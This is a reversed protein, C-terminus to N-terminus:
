PLMIRGPAGNTGRETHCSNCDGSSQSPGMARERGELTVKATFPRAVPQESYFNGASNVRLELVRGDAGTIVVRIDSDDAGHCNEPEHATPYVTGAISLMPGQNARHCALCPGGPRMQPGEEDKAEWMDGSSCQTPTDFASSAVGADTPPLEGACSERPAGAALWTALVARQDAPVAPGGPPMTGQEMRTLAVDAVRRAGDSPAPRLLQDYTVLAIPATRPPDAHCVQCHERLVVSVACPLGSASGTTSASADAPGLPGAGADGADHADDDSLAGPVSSSPLPRQPEGEAACAALLVVSLQWARM